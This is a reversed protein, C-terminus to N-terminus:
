SDNRVRGALSVGAFAALAGLLLGLVSIDREAIVAFVVLGVLVYATVVQVRRKLKEDDPLLGSL